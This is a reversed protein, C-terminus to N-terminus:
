EWLEHHWSHSPIGPIAKHGDWIDQVIEQFLIKQGFFLKSAMLPTSPMITIMKEQTLDVRLCFMELKRYFARWSPQCLPSNFWATTSCCNFDGWRLLQPCALGESSAWDSTSVCGKFQWLWWQKFKSPEQPLIWWLCSIRKHRPSLQKLFIDLISFVYSFFMLGPVSAM